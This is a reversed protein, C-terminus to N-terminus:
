NKSTKLNPRNKKKSILKSKFFGKLLHKKSKSDIEQNELVSLKQYNFITAINTNRKPKKTNNQNYPSTNNDIPIKNGLKSM